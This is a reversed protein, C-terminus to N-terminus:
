ISFGGTLQIILTIICTICLLLSYIPRPENEKRVREWRSLVSAVSLLLTIGLWSLFIMENESAHEVKSGAPGVLPLLM